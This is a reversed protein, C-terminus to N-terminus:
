PRSLRELDKKYVMDWLLKLRLSRGIALGERYDGFGRRTIDVILLRVGDGKTQQEQPPKHV